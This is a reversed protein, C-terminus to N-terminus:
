RGRLDELKARFYPNSAEFGLALMMSSIAQKLDGKREADLAQAYLRRGQPTRGIRSETDPKVAKEEDMSYRLQGGALGDNYAERKAVDDLVVYAESIRRAIQEVASRLEPEARLYRDPNFLRRMRRYATRIDPAPADPQVRLLRYYDVRPLAQALALIAPDTLQAGV